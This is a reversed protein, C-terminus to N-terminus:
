CCIRAATMNIPPDPAREGKGLQLATNKFICVKGGIGGARYFHGELDKYTRLSPSKGLNHDTVLPVDSRWASPSAPNYLQCTPFKQNAWRTEREGWRARRGTEGKCKNCSDVRKRRLFGDHERLSEGGHENSQGEEGLTPKENDFSIVGYSVSSPSVATSAASQALDYVMLSPSIQSEIEAAM